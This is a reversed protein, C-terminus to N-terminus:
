GTDIQKGERYNKITPPIACILYFVSKIILFPLLNQFQPKEVQEKALKLHEVAAQQKKRKSVADIQDSLIMQKEWHSGWMTFYHITTATIVILLFVELASLKLFRRVMSNPLGEVLVRHYRERLEGNKLVEVIGALKRFNDSADETSNKDPHWTLAMTRYQKKIEKTTADATLGIFDYFNIDIGVDEVLDFLDLEEQSAGFQAHAVTAITVFLLIM